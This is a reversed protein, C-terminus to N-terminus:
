EFAELIQQSEILVEPPLSDCVTKNRRSCAVFEHLLNKMQLAQAMVEANASRQAEPVHAHRTDAIMRYDDPNGAVIAGAADVWWPGLTPRHETVTPDSKSILDAHEELWYEDVMMVSNSNELYQVSHDLLTLAIRAGRSSMALGGRLVNTYHHKSGDNFTVVACTNRQEL